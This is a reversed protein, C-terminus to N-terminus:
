RNAAAYAPRGQSVNGTGAQRAGSGQVRSDENQRGAPGQVRLEPNQTGKPPEPLFWVQLPAALGLKL